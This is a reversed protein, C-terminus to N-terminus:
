VGSWKNQQKKTALINGRSDLLNSYKDTIGKKKLIWSDIDWFRGEPDPELFKGKVNISIPSSGKRGEEDIYDQRITLIINNQQYNKKLNHSWKSDIDAKIRVMRPPIPPTGSLSKDFFVLDSEWPKIDSFKRRPTNNAEEIEEEIMERLMQKTLKM